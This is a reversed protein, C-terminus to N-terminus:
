IGGAGSDWKPGLGMSAEGYIVSRWDDADVDPLETVAEGPRVESLPHAMKSVGDRLINGIPHSSYRVMLTLRDVSLITQSVFGIRPQGSADRDGLLAIKGGTHCIGFRREDGVSWGAWYAWQGPPEVGNMIAKLVEPSYTRTPPDDFEFVASTKLLWRLLVGVSPGDIVTPRESMIPLAIRQTEVELQSMWGNNCGRCPVKLVADQASLQTGRMEPAIVAVNTTPDYDTRFMVKFNDGDSLRRGLLEAGAPTARLWRPWLHERTVPKGGCFRCVRGSGKGM